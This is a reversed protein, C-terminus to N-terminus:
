RPFRCQPTWLLLECVPQMVYDFCEVVEVRSSLGTWPSIYERQTVVGVRLAEKGGTDVGEAAKNGYWGYAPPEGM